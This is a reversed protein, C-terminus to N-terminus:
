KIYTGGCSDRTAGTVSALINVREKVRLYGLFAFVLAEKFNMTLEDHVIIEPACKERLLGIFFSNHAGGGTVLMKDKVNCCRSVQYTAHEAFTRMLDATTGGQLLPIINQEVWERALSKPAPREYYPLSNLQELLAHMVKGQRALEGDRDFEKGERRALMNMVYNVPCIDYAIRRGEGGISINAFGGLNLCYM